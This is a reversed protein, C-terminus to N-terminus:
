SRIYEGYAARWDRMPLSPALPTFRPRPVRQVGAGRVVDILDEPAGVLRAAERAIDAHSVVGENVIQFLGPEDKAVIGAVAAALDDVYTTSAFVDGIAQVREGRRLAEHVTGIFSKKGRGFVWSTRIVFARPNAATVASEGELKTRGYVNVPPGGDDGFVYNSSFHVIAAGSRAAAAALNAPGDVNVARAMDPREECEDVGIVAGNVVVDVDHIAAFVADRDTIDLQRHNLAVAGAYRSAIARAVLGNAGAIVVRTM